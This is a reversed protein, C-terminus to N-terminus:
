EADGYYYELIDLYTAGDAALQAAGCQSMGNGHGYGGGYIVVTEQEAAMEQDAITEATSATEKETWEEQGNELLFFASPLLQMDSVTSGDLLTVEAEGPSLLQRIAYEGEIEVTEDGVTVTLLQAQGNGSHAAVKIEATRESLVSESQVAEEYQLGYEDETKKLIQIIPIEVQWRLWPSGYEVDEEPVKELFGRFAEEESLDDRHESLASTSYYQCTDTLLVEGRTAEVADASAETSKRNNYVQFAASDNLDAINKEDIGAVSDTNVVSDEATDIINERDEICRLAYTRACVAQAKLAEEPYYSPMESSVVACLYKELPLANVLVLGKELRYIYLEGEYEPLDDARSLSVVTLASEGSSSLRLMEQAELQELTVAYTQDAEIVEKELVREFTADEACIGREVTFSGASSVIIEDFLDDEYSDNLIRVRICIGDTEVHRVLADIANEGSEDNENKESGVDGSGEKESEEEWSEDKGTGAETLIDGNEETQVHTSNVAQEGEQFYGYLLYFSLILMGALAALEVAALVTEFWKRNKM